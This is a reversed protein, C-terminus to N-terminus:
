YFILFVSSTIWRLGKSIDNILILLSILLGSKIETGHVLGKELIIRTLVVDFESNITLIIEIELVTPFSVYYSIKFNTIIVNLYFGSM